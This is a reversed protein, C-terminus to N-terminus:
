DVLELIVIEDLGAHHLIACFSQKTQVEFGHEEWHAIHEQMDLVSTSTVAIGKFIHTTNTKM